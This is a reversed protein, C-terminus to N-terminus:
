GKILGLEKQSKKTLKQAVLVYAEDIFCEWDNKSIIEVDSLKVWQRKAFSPAQKFEEKEILSDFNEEQIKFAATVPFEDLGLVLFIKDCVMLCLNDGWKIDETVNLKNLAYSRIEEVNM